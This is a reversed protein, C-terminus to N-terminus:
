PRWARTTKQKTFMAKIKTVLEKKPIDPVRAGAIFVETIGTIALKEKIPGSVEDGAAILTIGEDSVIPKALVARPKVSEVSMKVM